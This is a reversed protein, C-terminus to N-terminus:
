AHGEDKLDDLTKVKLLADHIWLKRLGRRVSAVYAQEEFEVIAYATRLKYDNLGGGTIAEIVEIRKIKANKDGKEICM